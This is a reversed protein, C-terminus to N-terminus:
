ESEDVVRLKQRLGRATSELCFVYPIAVMSTAVTKFVVEPFGSRIVSSYGALFGLRPTASDVNTAAVAYVLSMAVSFTFLIGRRCYGVQASDDTLPALLVANFMVLPAVVEWFWGLPPYGRSTAAPFCMAFHALLTVLLILVYGDSNRKVKM